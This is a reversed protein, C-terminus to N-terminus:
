STSQPSPVGSSPGVIAVTRRPEIEMSVDRLVPKGRVYEKSLNRLVLARGNAAGGM